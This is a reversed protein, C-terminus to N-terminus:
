SPLVAAAASVNCRSQDQGGPAWTPARCHSPRPSHCSPVCPDWHHLQESRQIRVTAIPLPFRGPHRPSDGCALPSGWALLACSVMNTHVAVWWTGLLCQSWAGAANVALSALGRLSSARSELPEGSLAVWLLGETFVESACCAPPAWLAGTVAHFWMAGWHNATRM